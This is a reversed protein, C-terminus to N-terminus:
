CKRHTMGSVNLYQPHWYFARRIDNNPHLGCRGTCDRTNTNSRSGEVRKAVDLGYFVDLIRGCRSKFEQLDINPTNREVLRAVNSGIFVDLVLFTNRTESCKEDVYGGGHTCGCPKADSGAGGERWEM